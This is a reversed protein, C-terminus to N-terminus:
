GAIKDYAANLADLRARNDENMPVLGGETKKLDAGQALIEMLQENYPYKDQIEAMADFAAKREAADPTGHILALPDSSLMLYLEAYDLADGYDANNIAPGQNFKAIIREAKANDPVPKEAEETNDEGAADTDPASVETNDGEAKDAKSGAGNCATFLALSAIAFIFLVKKM